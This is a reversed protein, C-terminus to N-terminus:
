YSDSNCRAGAILTIGHIRARTRLTLYIKGGPKFVFAEGFALIEEEESFLTCRVLHKDIESNIIVEIEIIRPCLLGNTEKLLTCKPPYVRKVIVSDNAHSFLSYVFNIYILTIILLLKKM